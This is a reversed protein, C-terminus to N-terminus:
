NKSRRERYERIIETTRQVLWEWADPHNETLLDYLEQVEDRDWDLWTDSLWDMMKVDYAANTRTNAEELFAARETEDPMERAQEKAAAIEGNLWTGMESVAEKHARTLTVWVQFRIDADKYAPDYEELGMPRSVKISGQERLKALKKAM